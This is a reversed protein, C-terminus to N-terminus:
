NRDKRLHEINCQVANRSVTGLLYAELTKSLLVPPCNQCRDLFFQERIPVRVMAFVVVSSEFM